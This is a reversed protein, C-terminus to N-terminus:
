VRSPEAMSGRWKPSTRGQPCCCPPDPLPCRSRTKLWQPHCVTSRAYIAIEPKPIKSFTSAYKVSPPSIWNTLVPLIGEVTTSTVSGKEVNCVPWKEMLCQFWSVRTSRSVKKQLTVLCMQSTTIERFKEHLIQSSANEWFKWYGKSM